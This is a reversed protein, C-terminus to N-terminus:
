HGYNFGFWFSNGTVRNTLKQDFYGCCGSHQARKYHASPEGTFLQAESIRHNDVCSYDGHSFIAGIQNCLWVLDDSGINSLHDLVFNANRELNYGVVYDDTFGLRRLERGIRRSWEEQRNLLASVTPQIVPKPAPKPVSEAETFAAQLTPAFNIRIATLCDSDQTIAVQLDELSRVGLQWCMTNHGFFWDRAADTAVANMRSLSVQTIPQGEFPALAKELVICLHEGARKKRQADEYALEAEDLKKTM